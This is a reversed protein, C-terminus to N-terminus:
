LNLARGLYEHIIVGYATISNGTMETAVTPRRDINNNRPCGLRSIDGAARQIARIMQYGLAMAPRTGLM